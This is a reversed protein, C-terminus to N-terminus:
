GSRVNDASPTASKATGFGYRVNIMRGRVNIMRGRVNIMRGRVNIM